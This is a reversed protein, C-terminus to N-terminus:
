GKKSLEESKNILEVTKGAGAEALIIVRPYDLVKNWSVGSSGADSYIDSLDTDDNSVTPLSIFNRDLNVHKM